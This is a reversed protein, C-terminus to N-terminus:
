LHSIVLALATFLMAFVVLAPNHIRNMMAEEAQVDFSSGHFRCSTDQARHASCCDIAKTNKM